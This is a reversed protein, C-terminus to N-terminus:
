VSCVPRVRANRGGKLGVFEGKIVGETADRGFGIGVSIKGSCESRSPM